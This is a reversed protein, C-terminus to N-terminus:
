CNGFVASCLSRSAFKLSTGNILSPWNNATGSSHTRM